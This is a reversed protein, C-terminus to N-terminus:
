AVHNHFDSEYESCSESVMFDQKTTLISATNKLVWMCLIKCFLNVFADHYFDISQQLINFDSPAQLLQFKSSESASCLM